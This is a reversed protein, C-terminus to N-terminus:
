LPPWWSEAKPEVAKAPIEIGAYIESLPIEIDLSRFRVALNLDTVTPGIEWIGDPLRYFTEV